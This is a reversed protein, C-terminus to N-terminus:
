KLIECDEELEIFSFSSDLQHEFKYQRNKFLGCNRMSWIGTNAPLVLEPGYGKFDNNIFM